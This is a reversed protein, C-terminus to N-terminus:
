KVTAFTFSGVMFDNSTKWIEVVYTTIINKKTKFNTQYKESEIDIRYDKSGKSRFLLVMEFPPTILISQRLTHYVLYFLFEM